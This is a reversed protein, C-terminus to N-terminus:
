IFENGLGADEEITKSKFEDIFSSLRSRNDKYIFYDAAQLYKFNESTCTKVYVRATHLVEEFTYKFNTSKFWKVLKKICDQEDGMSGIRLGKTGRENVSFIARYEHIRNSVIDKINSTNLKVVELNDIETSNIFLPLTLEYRNNNLKVLNNANLIFELNEFQKYNDHNIGIYSIGSNIWFLMTLAFNKSTMVDDNLIKKSELELLKNTIKPNIIM